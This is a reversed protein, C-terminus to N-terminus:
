GKQYDPHESGAACIDNKLVVATRRRGASCGGEPVADQRGNNRIISVFAAMTSIGTSLIGYM